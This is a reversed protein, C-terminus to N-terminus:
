ITALFEIIKKYELRNQLQKKSSIDIKVNNKTFYQEAQREIVNSLQLTNNVKHYTKIKQLGALVERLWQNNAKWDIPIFKNPKETRGFIHNFSDRDTTEKDIFTLKSYAKNETTLFTFLKDLQTDNLDRLLGAFPKPPPTYDPKQLDDIIKIVEKLSIRFNLSQPRGFYDFDIFDEINSKIYDIEKKVMNYYDNKGYKYIEARYKFFSELSIGCELNRDAEHIEFSLITKGDEIKIEM